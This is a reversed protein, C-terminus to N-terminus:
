DLEIISRKRKPRSGDSVMVPRERSGGEATLSNPGSAAGPDARRRKSPRQTESASAGQAEILRQSPGAASPSPQRQPPPGTPRAYLRVWERCTRDFAARDRPDQILKKDGVSAARQASRTYQQGIEPM